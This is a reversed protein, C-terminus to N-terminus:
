IVQVEPDPAAEGTNGDRKWVNGAAINGTLYVLDAGFNVGNVNALFDDEGRADATPTAGGADGSVVIAAAIEGIQAVHDIAATRLVDAAGFYIAHGIGFIEIPDVGRGDREDELGGPV